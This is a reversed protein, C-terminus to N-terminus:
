DPTGSPPRGGPGVLATVAEVLDRARYPKALFLDPKCPADRFIQEEQSGSVLMTKQEPEVGRCAAILEVGTMAPMGHDTIILCPRSRAQAYAALAAEANLFTEVSYGLSGLVVAAMELMMAEDDVVYIVGERTEPVSSSNQRAPDDV